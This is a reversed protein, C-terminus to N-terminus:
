RMEYEDEVHARAHTRLQNLLVVLFRLIQKSHRSSEVRLGGPLFTSDGEVRSTILNSLSVMESICGFGTGYTISLCCLATGLL